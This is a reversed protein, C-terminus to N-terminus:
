LKFSLRFVDNLKDDIFSLTFREWCSFPWIASRSCPHTLTALGPDVDVHLLHVLLGHQEDGDLVVVLVHRQQTQLPPYVAHDVEDAVIEVLHLLRFHSHSSAPDPLGSRKKKLLDSVEFLSSESIV